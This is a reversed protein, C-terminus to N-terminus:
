RPCRTARRVGFKALDEALQKDVKTDMAPRKWSPDFLPMWSPEPEGRGLVMTDQEGGTCGNASAGTGCYWGDNPGFKDIDHKNPYGQVMPFCNAANCKLSKRDGDRGTTESICTRGDGGGNCYTFGGNGKADRYGQVYGCGQGACYAADGEPTFSYVRGPGHLTVAFYGNPTKSNPNGAFEDHM